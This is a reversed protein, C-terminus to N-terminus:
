RLVNYITQPVALPKNEPGKIFPAIWTPRHWCRGNEHEATAMCQKRWHGNVIFRHTFEISGSDGEYRNGQESKRLAVVRVNTEPHVVTQMRRRVQRPLSVETTTTLKSNLFILAGAIAKMRYELATDHQSDVENDDDVFEFEGREMIEKQDQVLSNFTTGYPIELIAGIMWGTRINNIWWAIFVNNERAIWSFASYPSNKRLHVWFPNALLLFGTATPFDTASLAYDNPIDNGLQYIAPCIEPEVFFPSDTQPTEYAWRIYTVYESLNMRSKPISLFRRQLDMKVPDDLSARIKSQAEIVEWFSHFRHGKDDGRQTDSPEERIM